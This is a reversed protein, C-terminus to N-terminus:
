PAKHYENGNTGLLKLEVPKYLRHVGKHRTAGGLAARERLRACTSVHWLVHAMLREEVAVGETGAHVGTVNHHGVATGAGYDTRHLVALLNDGHRPPDLEALVHVVM